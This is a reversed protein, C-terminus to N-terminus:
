RLDQISLVTKQGSINAVHEEIAVLAKGNAAQQALQQKEIALQQQREARGQIIASFAETTGRAAAGAFQQRKAEQSKKVIEEAEQRLRLFLQKYRAATFAHAVSWREEAAKEIAARRALQEQREARGRAMASGRLGGMQKAAASASALAKTSTSEMRDFAENVAVAAGAAILLSAALTTWGAPGGLAQVTSLGVAVARLSKVLASAVKIVRPIIILAGTFAATAALIKVTMKVAGVSVNALWEALHTLQEGIYQVVPALRVALVNSLGEVTQWFVAMSDNAQEIKATMEPGFAQSSSIVKKRIEELEDSGMALTNILKVGESDFLKAAIRVREFQNDVLGMADAIQLFAEYPGAASLEQASLGLDIIAQKAEGTGAAAEGIRKTVRQIAMNLTSVSVGSLEAANHLATLQDTTLGLRASIKAAEDLRSFASTISRIAGVVGFSIGALGALKVGFSTLPRM